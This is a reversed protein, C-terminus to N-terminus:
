SRRPAKMPTLRGCTSRCRRSRSRLGSPWSASRWCRSATARRVAQASLANSVDDLRTSGSSLLFIFAIGYLFVASSFGGLLFYKFAGEAGAASTRRIGTLVYVSLSLIELALFIVLLDTAAAMMMMGCLGFLTLAYYEGPPLHERDVVEDSFLMTLAGVICLIINIFLAFNDARIVGFARADSNWLFISALAAGGCGILGFGSIPMREGPQRIAEALMAAIASLALISSRSSPPTDTPTSTRREPSPTRREASAGASRRSPPREAQRASAGEARLRDSPPRYAATPARYDTSPQAPREAAVVGFASGRSGVAPQISGALPARHIREIIRNVSPEMPRLFVGPFVGMFIAMAVTPIMMAWERPTLDPLRRNKENTM